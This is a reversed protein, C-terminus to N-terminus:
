EKTWDPRLFIAQGEQLTMEGRCVARCVPSELQDKVAANWQGAVSEPWLNKEDSPHGGVCLPVLHDEHYDSKTGPLGLARMQEAKLRTTYSSAPDIAGPTRDHDLVFQQAWVSLSLSLTIGLLVVRM